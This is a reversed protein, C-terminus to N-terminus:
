KRSMPQHLHDGGRLVKEFKRFSFYATFFWLPMPLPPFHHVCLLRDQVPIQCNFDHILNHSIRICPYLVFRGGERVSNELPLPEYPESAFDNYSSSLSAEIARSLTQEDQSM